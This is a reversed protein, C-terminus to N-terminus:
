GTIIFPTQPFISLESIKYKFYRLKSGIKFNRKEIRTSIISVNTRVYMLHLAYVEAIKWTGGAGGEPEMVVEKLVLRDTNVQRGPWVIVPGAM